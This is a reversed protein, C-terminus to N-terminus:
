KRQKEIIRQTKEQKIDKISFDPKTNNKFFDDSIQDSKNFDESM